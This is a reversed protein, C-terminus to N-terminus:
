VFKDHVVFGIVRSHHITQRRLVCSSSQRCRIHMIRRGDWTYVFLIPSMSARTRRRSPYAYGKEKAVCYWIEVWLNRRTITLLASVQASESLLYAEKIGPRRYSNTCNAQNLTEVTRATSHMEIREDFTWDALSVCTWDEASYVYRRTYSNTTVTYISTCICM